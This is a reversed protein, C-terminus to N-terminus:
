IEEANLLHSYGNQFLFSWDKMIEEETLETVDNDDDLLDYPKLLIAGDAEKVLINPRKGENPLTTEYVPIAKVKYALNGLWIEAFTDENEGVWQYVEQNENELEDIMKFAKRVSLNHNQAQYWKDFAIPVKIIKEAEPVKNIEEILPRHVEIPEVNDDIVKETQPETVEENESVDDFNHLVKAKVVLNKQEPVEKIDISGDERSTVDVHEPVIKIQEEQMEQTQEVQIEAQEETTEKVGINKFGLIGM